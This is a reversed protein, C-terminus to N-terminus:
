GSLASPFRGMSFPTIRRARKEGEGARPYSRVLGQFRCLCRFLHGIGALLSFALLIISIHYPTVVSEELMTAELFWLIPFFGFTFLAAVCTIVLGLALNQRTDIRCGVYASFVQLSPFCIGLSGVFLVAIRWFREIGIVAGYPLAFLIGAYLLAGALLATNGDTAITKVLREQESLVLELVGCLCSYRAYAM